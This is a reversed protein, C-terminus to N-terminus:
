CPQLLHTLASSVFASIFCSLHFTLDDAVHQKALQIEDNKEGESKSKKERWWQDNGQKKQLCSNKLAVDDRYTAQLTHPCAIEEM